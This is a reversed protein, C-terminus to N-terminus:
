ICSIVLFAINAIRQITAIMVPHYVCRVLFILPATTALRVSLKVFEEMYIVTQVNLVFDLVIVLLVGGDM